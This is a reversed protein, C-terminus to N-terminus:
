CPTVDGHSLACLGVWTKCSAGEHRGRDGEVGQYKYLTDWKSDLSLLLSSIIMDRVSLRPM